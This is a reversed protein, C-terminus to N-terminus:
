VTARAASINYKKIKNYLTARSIGLKKSARSLNFETEAIVEMIAQRELDALRTGRKIKLGAKKDAAGALGLIEPAILESNALNVAREVVNELERINGPWHYNLLVQEAAPSLSLGPKNLNHSCRNLIHKALLIIDEFRECLPPIFIPLV